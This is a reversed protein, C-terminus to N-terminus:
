GRPVEPHTVYHPGQVKCDDPQCPQGNEDQCTQPLSLDRQRLRPEDNRAQASLLIENLHWPSTLGEGILAAVDTDILFGIPLDVQDDPHNGVQLYLTRPNRRGGRLKM